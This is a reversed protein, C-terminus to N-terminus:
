RANSKPEDFLFDDMVVIDKDVEFLIRGRRDEADGDLVANGHVVVVKAVIKEELKIGLFSLGNPYPEAYREALLCDNKDYLAIKTTYKL